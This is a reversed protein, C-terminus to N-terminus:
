YPIIPQPDWCCKQNMVYTKLLRNVKHGEFTTMIIDSRKNWLEGLESFPNWHTKPDSSVLCDRGSIKNSM